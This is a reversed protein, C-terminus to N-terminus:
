NDDSEKFFAKSFKPKIMKWITESYDKGNYMNFLIGSIAPKNKTVSFVWEAYTKKDPLEGNYNERLGDFLKGAYEQISMYNYILDKITDRVWKDFEDPVRELMEDVSGDSKLVEWIDYTTINTVIRHLRLYEEGKIKMRFGSKFRVVYGEQNDGITQKLMKFNTFGDYKKVIKWNKLNEVSEESGDSLNFSSLMILEEAGGYDIVIRNEPAILELCYSKDKSLESLDYKSLLKQAKVAQESIFSGKSACIWEDNKEFLSIYSGDIKEYVDFSENPIEEPKLQEMNFFKNFGRAVLNGDFDLFLGRCALTVEDWANEYQCKRSYNYVSIPLTPHTQKMVLGRSIYDNLTEITIKFKKM